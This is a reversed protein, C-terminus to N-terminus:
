CSEEGKRSICEGRRLPNWSIDEGGEVVHLVRDVYLDGVLLAVLFQLSPGEEIMHAQEVELTQALDELFLIEVSLVRGPRDFWPQGTKYTRCRVDRRRHVVMQLCEGRRGKLLLVEVNCAVM